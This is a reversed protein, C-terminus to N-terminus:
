SRMSSTGTNSTRSSSMEIASGTIPWNACWTRAASRRCTTTRCRTEPTRRRAPRSCGCPLTAPVMSLRCSSGSTWRGSPFRSGISSATRSSRSPSRHVARRGQSRAPFGISRDHVRGRGPSFRHGPVARAGAGAHVREEISPSGDDEGTRQRPTEYSARGVLQFMDGPTNGGRVHFISQKLAFNTQQGETSDIGIGFFDEQPLDQRRAGAAVFVNHNFLHNFWLETGVDWYGSVPALVGYGFVSVKDNSFRYGPGLPMGPDRRSAASASSCAM